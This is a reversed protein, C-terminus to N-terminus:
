EHPLKVFPHSNKIHANFHQGVSGATVLATHEAVTVNSYAYEAGSPRFRVRLEKAVEDYALAEIASSTVLVWGPNSQNSM